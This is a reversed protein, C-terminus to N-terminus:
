VLCEQPQAPVAAPQVKTTCAKHPNHCNHKKVCDTCETRTCTDVQGLTSASPRFAVIAYHMARMQCQAVAQDTLPLSGHMVHCKSKCTVLAQRHKRTGQRRSLNLPLSSRATALFSEAHCVVTNVPHPTNRSRHTHASRPLTRKGAM